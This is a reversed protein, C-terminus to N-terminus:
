SLLDFFNKLVTKSIIKTKIKLNGSKDKSQFDVTIFGTQCKILFEKGKAKLYITSEFFNNRFYRISFNESAISYIFSGVAKYQVGKKILLNKLKLYQVYRM